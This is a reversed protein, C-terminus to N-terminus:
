QQKILTLTMEGDMADNGNSGNYPATQRGFIGRDVGRREWERGQIKFTYTNLVDLDITYMITAAQGMREFDTGSINKSSSYIFTEELKTFTGSNNTDMWLSASGVGAGDDSGAAGTRQGCTYYVKVLLQYTGSFPIGLNGTNLGTIDFYTASSGISSVQASQQYHLTYGQNYLRRWQSAPNTPDGSFYYFGPTVQVALPGATVTNYVLVGTTVDPTITTRDDTGTLEVRPILLGMDPSSIDLLAGPSPTDTNIGATQANLGACLGLFLLSFFTVKGALLNLKM